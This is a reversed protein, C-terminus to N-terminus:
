FNFEQPVCFFVSDIKDGPISFFDSSGIFNYSYGSMTTFSSLDNVTFTQTLDGSCFERVEKIENVTVCSGDSCKIEANYMM